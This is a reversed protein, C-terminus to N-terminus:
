NKGTSHVPSINESDLLVAIWRTDENNDMAIKVTMTLPISLLMGVPGLVWGWFILSLFVVLTSLGLGKGMFRPEIVNGIVVNIAVYLLVVAVAYGWGLQILALLVAPM